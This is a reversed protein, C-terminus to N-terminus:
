PRQFLDRESRGLLRPQCGERQGVGVGLVAVEDHVRIERIYVGVYVSVYYGGEAWRNTVPSPHDCRRRTVRIVRAVLNVLEHEPALPAMALDLVDLAAFHLTGDLHEPAMDLLEDSHSGCCCGPCSSDRVPRARLSIVMASTLEGSIKVEQRM